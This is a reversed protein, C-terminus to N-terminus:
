PVKHTSSLIQKLAQLINRMDRCYTARRKGDEIEESLARERKKDLARDEEHIWNSLGAPALAALTNNTYSNIYLRTKNNM